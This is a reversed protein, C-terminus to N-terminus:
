LPTAEEEEFIVRLAANAAKQAVRARRDESWERKVPLHLVLMGKFGVSQMDLPASQWGAPVPRGDPRLQAGGPLILRGGGNGSM